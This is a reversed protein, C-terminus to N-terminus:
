RLIPIKIPELILGKPKCCFRIGMPGSCCVKPLICEDNYECLQFSKNVPHESQRLLLPIIFFTVIKM